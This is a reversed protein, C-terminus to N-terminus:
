PADATVRLGLEIAQELSLERGQAWAEEFAPGGLGERLGALNGELARAEDVTLSYRIAERLGAIVAFLRVAEPLLGQAAAIEALGTLAWSLTRQQGIERAVDISGRYEACARELDNRERALDGVNCLMIAEIQRAGLERALALAEDYLAAAREPEGLHRAVEGLNSVNMALGHRDGLEELLARSEELLPKARAYEGRYFLLVAINGVSRAIGSKDEIRRNIELEEEYCSLARQHEGSDLFAVGLSGLSVAIARTDGVRRALWLAEELFEVARDYHNQDCALAGVGRLLKSRTLESLGSGSELIREIWRRGEALHGRVSWFWWLAVAMRAAAESDGRELTWALASRLNDHDRELRDLYDEQEPGRFTSEASRALTLYHAAHAARLSETEGSKELREGAYERITELMGLRPGLDPDVETRSLLILSKEALSGLAATLGSPGCVAAVADAWCGGTFVALRRALTQEAPELQDYSWAITDRLARQREPLDMPGDTLVPLRRELHELLEAPSWTRLRPAALELALPLGDLRRCIEVVAPANGATLRFRVDAARARQVFLAVAPYRLLAAVPLDTGGPVELPPVRLEHEGRLHLPARSTVLVQVGPAASLLDAVLAAAPQLHEFNDLVLLSRREGLFARLTELPARVGEDRLGLAHVITSAVLAPDQVPGLSVFWVGGEWAEVWESALHLALRTKGTGGPGTLTLLRVGEDQLLSRALRIEETRGVLPTPQAPVNHRAPRPGAAVGAARPPGADPALAEPSEARARLGAALARTEASPEVELEQTLRRAFDAYVRLAAVRDGLRDLLVLLDRLTEEDHTSLTLARRMWSAADRPNEAAEAERALERAATFARQRLRVRESELWQELEPAVDSVHFGAFLDGGYLELAEALRGEDLAREFAVADCWLAKADVSLEEDGRALVVGKGLARRLVYLSQRLSHRAREDDLEPWFSALVLDRRQFGRPTALVLYALLFFRKPQSLVAALTLGDAGRLDLTGLTLLRIM